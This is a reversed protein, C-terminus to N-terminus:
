QIVSSQWKQNELYKMEGARARGCGPYVNPGWHGTNVTVASHAKRNIDYTFQHGQYCVTNVDRTANRFVDDHTSLDRQQTALAFMQEVTPGM